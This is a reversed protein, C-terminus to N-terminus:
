KPDEGPEQTPEEQKDKFKFCRIPKLNMIKVSLFKEGTKTEGEWVAVGEYSSYDPKRTESM